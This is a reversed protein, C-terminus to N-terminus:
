QTLNLNMLLLFHYLELECYKRFKTITFANIKSM